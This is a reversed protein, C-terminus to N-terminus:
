RVYPNYISAGTSLDRSYHKVFDWVIQAHQPYLCHVMDEMYTLEVMPAGKENKFTWTNKGYEGNVMTWGYSDSDFGSIPFAKFDPEPLKKMGNLVLLADMLDYFERVIDKTAPEINKPSDYEATSVAVPLQHVGLKALAEATPVAGAIGSQPYAAAYLDPTSFVAILTALSGMSYGTVYVRSADLEPYTELMYRVCEPLVLALVQEGEATTTHLNGKEPAFLAIREKGALELFGQGDVFQRPDDGGGHLAIILPISGKDATHNMVEEPLYEYWTQLYEGNATKYASFREEVHTIQHIGDLTKGDILANRVSLSYPACDGGMGQYPASASNLGTSLEQGRVAKIFLNYYADQVLAAYDAEAKQLTVVKRVPFEQNFYTKKEGETQWANAGDAKVYKDVVADAANVLYVPVHAAVKSSRLMTGNVLLMGAIRSVYDLTGAIYNNLFTAGGDFGIVYLYGYGGYYPADSYFIRQGDVTTGGNISFISTQLAYYNKQDEATFAEGNAPTVLILSGIAQEIIDVLGLEKLYALADDKGAFHKDSFVVLNTNIRTAGNRGYMDASRYVYTTNDPYNAMVPHTVYERGLIAKLAEPANAKVEGMTEFTSPNGLNGSYNLALASTCGCLMVLVMALSLLKKM